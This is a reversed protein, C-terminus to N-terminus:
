NFDFTSRMKLNDIIKIESILCESYKKAELQDFFVFINNNLFLVFTQVKRMEWM